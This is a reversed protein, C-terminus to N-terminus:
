RSTVTPGGAHGTPSSVGSSRLNETLAVPLFLRSWTSSRRALGQKVGEEGAGRRAAAAPVAAARFGGSDGGGSSYGSSGGSTSLLFGGINAQGTTKLETAAKRYWESRSLLVKAIPYGVVYAGLLILAPEAGIIVMPFTAWFPILFVYLFWGVGPTMLGVFTFLGIIGFVFAGILIRVPWSLAPTDFGFSAPALAREAAPVAAAAGSKGELTAVIAAVGGTVGKDYDGAKFQPTM